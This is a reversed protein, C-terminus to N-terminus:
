DGSDTVERVEIHGWIAGPCKAAWGQAEALDMARILYYGGLQEKTEAFPGNHVQMEGTKDLNVISASTSTGLAGHAIHAGAKDLADKYAHMKEMWQAMAERPLAQGAKEDAHLLLMYNPMARGKAHATYARLVIDRSIAPNRCQIPNEADMM